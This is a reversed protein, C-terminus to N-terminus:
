QPPAEQKRRSTIEADFTWADKPIQHPKTKRDAMDITFNTVKIQRSDAELRYMFSAIRSRSFGRQSDAPRIRFKEDIVGKAPSSSSVSIDVDGIEVKPHDKCKRIYSQPSGERALGDGDVNRTLETHELALKQIGKVLGPVRFELDERLELLEGHSKWGTWALVISGLLSMVIIARALNMNAFFGKM